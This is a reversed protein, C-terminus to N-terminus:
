YLSTFRVNKRKRRAFDLSNGSVVTYLIYIYFDRRRRALDLRKESLLSIYIFLFDRRRRALDFGEM